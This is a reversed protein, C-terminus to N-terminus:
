SKDLPYLEREERDMRAGITQLVQTTERAFGGADAAIADTTWRKLHQAFIEKLGGMEQQFRKALDSVERRKDAILRPYFSQDEAALHVSLTGAMRNLVDRAAASKGALDPQKAISLIQEAFARLKGHHAQLM